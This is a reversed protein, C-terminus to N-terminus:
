CKSPVTTGSVRPKVSQLTVASKTTSTVSFPRRNWGVALPMALAASMTCQRRNDAGVTEQSGIGSVPLPRISSNVTSSAVADVIAASIAAVACPSMRRQIAPSRVGSLQQHAAPTSWVPAATM